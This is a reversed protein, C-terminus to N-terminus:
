RGIIQCAKNEIQGNADATQQIGRRLCAQIEVVLIESLGESVPAHMRAREDLYRYQTGRIHTIPKAPDCVYEGTRSM